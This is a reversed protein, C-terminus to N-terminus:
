KKRRLLKVLMAFLSANKDDGIYHDIVYFFFYYFRCAAWVCVALLGAVYWRIAPEVLAMLMVAAVVALLGFLGAKLWLLLPSQIDDFLKM